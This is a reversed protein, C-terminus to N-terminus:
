ATCTWFEANFYISSNVCRGLCKLEMDQPTRTFNHLPFVKWLFDSFIYDTSGELSSSLLRRYVTQHSWIDSIICPLFNWRQIIFLSRCCNRPSFYKPVILTGLFESGCQRPDAAYVLSLGSREESLAGWLFLVTVILTIVTQDHAGSTDRCWSKSISQGDTV